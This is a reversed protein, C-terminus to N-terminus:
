YLAVGHAACWADVERDSRLSALSDLASNVARPCWLALLEIANADALEFIRDLM